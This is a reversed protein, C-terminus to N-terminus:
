GSRRRKGRRGRRRRRSRVAAFETGIYIGFRPLVQRHILLILAAVGFAAGFVILSTSVRNMLEPDVIMVVALSLMLTGGVLKLLRGHKEELKNSRLTFVAFLFIAMEDIQYIIMYLALLLVFSLPGVGQAALLNTWLVPLGATCSFEVTSVGASLVVTAGVMAWFSDSANIVRRIGKYIGPKKEDAITFSIGEKYWFYDKINVAAFFLAMLAVAIQIWGLFRVFTFMTFLGAIFLVYILSTVTLFTFGIILIKKRSGTRLSLAILISLVWLSCPNFGDVFGIIATSVALSQAGLDVPGILPLDIVDSQGENLDSGPGLREQPEPAVVGPIIGVGADPCGSSSCAKVQQEIEQAIAENFGIWYREGIITVPVGRPEFGMADAMKKLIAQNDADYWVEYARVEVNPYRRALNELFPEEKACYPCGDGWFFYIVVPQDSQPPRAAQATPVAAWISLALLALVGVLRLSGWPRARLYKM